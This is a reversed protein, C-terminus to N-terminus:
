FIKWFWTIQPLSNEDPCMRWAENLDPFRKKTLTGDTRIREPDIMRALVNERFM